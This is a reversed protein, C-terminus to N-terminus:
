IYKLAIILICLVNNLLYTFGICLYKWWDRRFDLEVKSATVAHGQPCLWLHSPSFPLLISILACKEQASHSFIDSCM